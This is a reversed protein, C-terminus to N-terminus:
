GIMRGKGTKVILKKRLLFPEIIKEITEKSIDLSSVLTNLGVPKRHTRLFELYKRDHKDLGNEDIGIMDMSVIVMSPNIKHQKKSLIVKKIWGLLNNAIRPTGRSREAIM